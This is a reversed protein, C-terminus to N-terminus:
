KVSQKLKRRMRVAATGGIVTGIITFPEPVATAGPVTASVNINDFQPASTGVAVSNQWKVNVLNTFGSFNFTQFGPLADVTLSQAVTSNDARTGTFNIITQGVGSTFDTLDISSLDFAGGGVKTLSIPNATSFPFLATSGQYNRSQTGYYLLQTSSSVTFGSETYTSGANNVSNSNQALSEFNIAM